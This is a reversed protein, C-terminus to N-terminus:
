CTAVTMRVHGELKEGPRLVHMGCDAVGHRNFANNMNSAPEVAIFPQGPPTFLVLHGFIDSAELTLSLGLRPWRLFASRTWGAYCNDIASDGVDRMKEFSWDGQAPVRLSPLNRDDSTWVSQASFGLRVGNHRPFYPHFGLGVPQDRTDTNEIMMGISLGGERLDFRLLARYAFPWQTAPDGPPEHDLELTASDDALLDLRWRREWGNGHLVNDEGMFNPALQYEQGEFSFHGHAIRNSFPVLPYGGVARGRQAVLHPDAVPHLFSMAGRRWYAIAGGVDPLLGLRAEGAKLEIM